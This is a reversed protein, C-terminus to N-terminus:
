PRVRLFISTRWILKKPTAKDKEGVDRIEHEKKQMMPNQAREVVVVNKGLSHIKYEIVASGVLFLQAHNGIGIKNLFM